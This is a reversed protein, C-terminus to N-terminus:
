RRKLHAHSGSRESNVHGFSMIRGARPQGDSHEPRENHPYVPLRDGEPAPPLGGNQHRQQQFAAPHHGRIRQDLRDPRPLRRGGRLGRQLGVHRMQAFPEIRLPAPTRVPMM